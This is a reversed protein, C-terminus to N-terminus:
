ASGLEGARARAAARAAYGYVLSDLAENRAGSPLVWEQRAVGRLYKTVRREATLQSISTSRPPGFHIRIGWRAGCRACVARLNSFRPLTEAGVPM